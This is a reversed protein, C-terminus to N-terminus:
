HSGAGKLDRVQKELDSLRGETMMYPVALVALGAIFLIVFLPLSYRGVMEATTVFYAGCVFLGFGCLSLVVNVARKVPVFYPKVQSITRTICLHM